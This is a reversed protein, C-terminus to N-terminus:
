NAGLTFSPSFGELSNSFFGRNTFNFKSGTTTGPETAKSGRYLVRYAFTAKQYSFRPLYEGGGQEVESPKAVQLVGAPM